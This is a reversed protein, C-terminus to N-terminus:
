PLPNIKLTTGDAPIEVWFDEGIVIEYYYDFSTYRTSRWTSVIQADPLWYNLIKMVEAPVASAEVQEDIEVIQGNSQIDVEFDFGQQNQGGLEYVLSGDPGIEINAYTPDAGSVANAASLVTNPVQSLDIKKQITGLKQAILMGDTEILSQAQADALSFPLALAFIATTTLIKQGINM